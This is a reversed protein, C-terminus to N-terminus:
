GPALGPHQRLFARLARRYHLTARGRSSWIDWRPKRWPKQPGHYHLIHPKGNLGDKPVGSQALFRLHRGIRGWSANWGLPLQVVNNRFLGNLHDQDGHSCASAAVVDEVRELLDPRARLADCNLLLVGANFYDSIPAPAMLGRIEALRADREASQGAPLTLWHAVSYDRVVGAFAEGLDIDFLPGVDHTILTDGDIYLVYGDISRPLLLRGMTAGSIYSTPGHAQELYGSSIDKCILRVQPHGAAVNRVDQWDAENLGAGWVHLEAPRRIHRLLSWISVLTPRLFDRDAVYAIKAPHSPPPLAPEKTAAGHVAM